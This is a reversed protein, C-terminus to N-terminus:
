DLAIKGMQWINTKIEKYYCTLLHAQKVNGIQILAM